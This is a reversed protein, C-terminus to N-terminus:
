IMANSLWIHLNMHEDLDYSFRRTKGYYDYLWKIINDKLEHNIHRFTVNILKNGLLEFVQRMQELTALRVSLSEISPFMSSIRKVSTLGDFINLYRINRFDYMALQSLMTETIRLSYLNPLNRCLLKTFGVNHFQGLKLGTISNLNIVSKLFYFLQEISSYCGNDVLILTSINSFYHPSSISM